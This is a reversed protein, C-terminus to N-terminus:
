ASLPAGAPSYGVIEKPEPEKFAAARSTSLGYDVLGEVLKLAVLVAILAAMIINLLVVFNMSRAHVVAATLAAGDAADQMHERRLVTQGIGIAYYLMAVGFVAFALAVLFALIRSSRTM